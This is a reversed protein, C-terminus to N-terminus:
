KTGAQGWDEAQLLSMELAASDLGTALVLPVCVQACSLGLRCMCLHKQLSRTRHYKLSGMCVGTSRMHRKKKCKTHTTSAQGNREEQLYTAMAKCNFAARAGQMRTQINMGCAM